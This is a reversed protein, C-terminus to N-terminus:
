IWGRYSLTYLRIVNLYSVKRAAWFEAESLVGSIVFQKHLKQLESRLTGKLAILLNILLNGWFIPDSHLPLVFGEFNNILNAPHYM